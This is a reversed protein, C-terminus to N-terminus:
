SKKCCKKEFIDNKLQRPRTTGRQAEKRKKKQKKRQKEECFINTRKRKRKKQLFLNRGKKRTNRELYAKSSANTDYNLKEVATPAGHLHPTRVVYPPIAPIPNPRRSPHSCSEVEWLPFPVEEGTSVFGRWITNNNNKNKNSKNKNKSNNNNRLTYEVRTYGCRSSICRM